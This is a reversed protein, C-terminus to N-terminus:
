RLRDAWDFVVRIGFHTRLQPDAYNALFREGNAALPLNGFINEDLEFVERPNGIELAEGTEVTAAMMRRNAIFYLTKGDPSWQPRFGRDVSVRFPRGPKEFPRVYVNPEGSFNSVYALWRGDPSIRPMGSAYETEFLPEPDESGDAPMIHIVPYGQAHNRTLLIRRGDPTWTEPFDDSPGALICRAPASGDSPIVYLDQSGDRDNQYLIQRGDPSWVPFGDNGPTNTLRTMTRRTFDYVFIKDNAAPVLAALQEGDPRLSLQLAYATGIDTRSTKGSLHLWALELEAQDEGASLYALDGNDSM